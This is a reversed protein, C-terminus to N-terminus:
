GGCVLVGVCGNRHLGRLRQVFFHAKLLELMDVPNAAPATGPFGGNSTAYCILLAEADVRGIIYHLVVGAPAGGVLALAPYYGNVQAPPTGNFAKLLKMEEASPALTKNRLRTAWALADDNSAPHYTRDGLEDFERYILHNGKAKLRLYADKVCSVHNALDRRGLVLYREPANNVFDM